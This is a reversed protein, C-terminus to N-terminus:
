EENRLYPEIAQAIKYFALLQKKNYRDINDNLPGGICYLIAHIENIVEHLALVKERLKFNEEYVNM